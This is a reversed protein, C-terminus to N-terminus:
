NRALYRTVRRIHAIMLWALASETVRDKMISCIAELRSEGILGSLKAAGLKTLTKKLSLTDM